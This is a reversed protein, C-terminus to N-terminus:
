LFKAREAPSPIMCTEKKGFWKYRNSAIFDYVLDRIFKPVIWYVYMLGWLGGLLTAIKIAAASKDYVKGKYYLIVSDPNAQNLTNPPLLRMGKDSQIPSFRFLDKKDRKLVFQVSTNCFNCIGDFFVIAKSDIADRNNM